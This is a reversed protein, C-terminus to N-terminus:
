YSINPGKICYGYIWDKFDNSENDKYQKMKERFTKDQSPRITIFGCGNDVMIKNAFMLSVRVDGDSFLKKNLIYLLVDIAIETNSKAPQNIMDSLEKIQDENLTSKVSADLNKMMISHLTCLAEYDNEVDPSELIFEFAELFNRQAVKYYLDDESYRSLEMCNYLFEDLNDTVYKVNVSRPLLYKNNM